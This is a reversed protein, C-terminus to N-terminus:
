FDPLEYTKQCFNRFTQARVAKIIVTPSQLFINSSQSVPFDTRTVWCTCNEKSPSFFEKNRAVNVAWLAKEKRDSRCISPASLLAFGCVQKRPLFSASPQQGSCVLPSPLFSGFVWSSFGAAGTVRPNLFPLRVSGLGACLGSDALSRPHM